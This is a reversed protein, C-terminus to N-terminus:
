EVHVHINLRTTVRLPTRASSLNRVTPHSSPLAAPRLREPDGTHDPLDCVSRAPAGVYFSDVLRGTRDHAIAEHLPTTDSAVIACGASMSELLSWSLM